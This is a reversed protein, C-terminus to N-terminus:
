ACGRIGAQAMAVAMEKKREMAMTKGKKQSPLAEPWSKSNWAAEQSSV